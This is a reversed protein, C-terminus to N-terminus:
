FFYRQSLFTTLINLLPYIIRHNVIRIILELIDLLSKRVKNRGFYNIPTVSNIDEPKDEIQYLKSLISLVFLRSSILGVLIRAITDVIGYLGGVQGTLDLFSYVQRSYFDQNPDAVISLQLLSQSSPTNYFDFDTREVSYFTGEKQGIEFM